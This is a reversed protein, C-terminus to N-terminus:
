RKIQLVRAVKQTMGLSHEMTQSCPVLHAPFEIPNHAEAQKHGDGSNSMAFPLTLSLRYGWLKDRQKEM